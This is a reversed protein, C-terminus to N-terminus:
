LNLESIKPKGGPFEIKVPGWKSERFEIRDIKEMLLDHISGNKVYVVWYERVEYLTINKLISRDKEVIRGIGLAKLDEQKSLDPLQARTAISNTAILILSFLILSRM